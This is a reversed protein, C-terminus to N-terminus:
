PAAPLILDLATRLGVLRPLRQTGGMGPIIGLNVEPLGLSTKPHDSAVRYDCALCPRWGGGMCSGHIAAVVPVKL